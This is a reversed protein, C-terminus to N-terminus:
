SNGGTRGGTPPPSANGLREAPVIRNFRSHRALHALYAGVEYSVAYIGHWTDHQTEALVNM